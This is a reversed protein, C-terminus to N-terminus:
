NSGHHSGQLNLVVYIYDVIEDVVFFMAACVCVWKHVGMLDEPTHFSDISEGGETGSVDQTDKLSGFM